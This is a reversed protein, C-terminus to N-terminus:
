LSFLFSISALVIKKGSWRMIGVAHIPIVAEMEEWGQVQEWYEPCNLELLLITGLAVKQIVAEKKKM